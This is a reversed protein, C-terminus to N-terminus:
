NKRAGRRPRAGAAEDRADRAVGRRLPTRIFILSLQGSFSCKHHILLPRGRFVSPAGAGSGERKQPTMFGTRPRYNTIFVASVLV